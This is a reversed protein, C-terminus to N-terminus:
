ARYALALLVKVLIVAQNPKRCMYVVLGASAEVGSQAMARHKANSAGSAPAQWRLSASAQAPQRYYFLVPLWMTGENLSSLLMRMLLRM